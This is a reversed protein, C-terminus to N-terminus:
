LKMEREDGRPNIALPNPNVRNCQSLTQTNLGMSLRVAQFQGQPKLRKPRCHNSRNLRFLRLPIIKRQL